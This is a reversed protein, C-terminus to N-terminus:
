KRKFIQVLRPELKGSVVQVSEYGYRKFLHSLTQWDFWHVHDPNCQTQGQSAMKTTWKESIANPTSILILTNKDIIYRLHEIFLGTNDIHELIDFLVVIDFKGYKEYIYKADEEKCFDKCEFNDKDADVIDVGLLFNPKQTKIYEHRAWLEVQGVCGIDLVKKDKIYSRLLGLSKDKLQAQTDQM